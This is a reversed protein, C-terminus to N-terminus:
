SILSFSWGVMDTIDVCINWALSNGRQGMLFLQGGLCAISQLDQDMDWIQRRLNLCTIREDPSPLYKWVEPILDDKGYPIWAVIVVALEDSGPNRKRKDGVQAPFSGSGDIVHLEYWRVNQPFNGVTETIAHFTENQTHFFVM